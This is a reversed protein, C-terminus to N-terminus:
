GVEEGADTWLRGQCLWLTGQREVPIGAARKEDVWAPVHPNARPPSTQDRQQLNRIVAGLYAGPKEAQKAKDLIRNAEMADNGSLKLLEHCRSRSIGKAELAKMRTWFWDEDSANDPNAAGSQGGKHTQTQSQPQPQNLGAEADSAERQLIAEANTRKQRARGSAVGGQRGAKARKQYKEKTITLETEIRKHRWEPEFLEALTSRIEAWQEPPLHVIRALKADESPLGEHLWYYLILMLYAGHELTSLHVTDALYDRVYLPMWPHSM